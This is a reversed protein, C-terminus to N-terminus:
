KDWAIFAWSITRPRTTKLKGQPVGKRDPKGADPNPILSNDLWEELREYAARREADEAATGSGSIRLSSDIMRIFSERAEQHSDFTDDRTSTIYSVEPHLGEQVLINFAYLYDHGAKGALGLEALLREDSRPSSGTSLTICVRRRAVDTLRLLSDRIDATAISRSALAIDVSDSGVGHESWPDSWSMQILRAGGAAAPLAAADLESRLVSLMGSSFDAAVVQHGAQVLPITLAGTGCGMDFVSEGEKIAALELFRDVYPNPADKTAFTASRKDWFSADDPSKRHKQLRRWEEAWDYTSLLPAFPVTEQDNASPAVAASATRSTIKESM